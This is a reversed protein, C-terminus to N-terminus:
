KFNSEPITKLKQKHLDLLQNRRLHIMSELYTIGFLLDTLVVLSNSSVIGDVGDMLQEM